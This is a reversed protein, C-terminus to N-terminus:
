DRRVDRVFDRLASGIQQPSDEQLFHKGRVTIDRQNTWRKCFDRTQGTIIRGPEGLVLLKPM